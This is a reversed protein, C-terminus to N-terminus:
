SPCQPQQEVPRAGTPGTLSHGVALEGRWAAPIADPDFDLVQRGRDRFEFGGAPPEAVLDHAAVAARLDQELIRGAVRDFEELGGSSAAQVTATAQAALGPM